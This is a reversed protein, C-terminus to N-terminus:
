AKVPATQNILDDEDTGEDAAVSESTGNEERGSTMDKVKDTLKAWLAKLWEWCAVAGQRIAAFAPRVFEAVTDYGESIAEAMPLEVNEFLWGSCKYGMFAGLMLGLLLGLFTGGMLGAVAVGSLGVIAMFVSVNLWIFLGFLVAGGIWKLLTFATDWSILGASAREIVIQREIGASVGIAIVEPDTTGEAPYDPLEGNLIQLYAALSAYAKFDALEIQKEALEAVLGADGRDVAKIVAKVEENGTIMVTSLELSERLRYSLESLQKDSVSGAELHEIKFDDLNLPANGGMVAAVNSADIQKLLALMLTMAQAKQEPTKDAMGKDLERWIMDAMEPTEPEERRLSAYARDFNTVGAVIKRAIKVADAHSTEPREDMLISTLNEVTSLGPDASRVIEEAQSSFLSLEKETFNITNM